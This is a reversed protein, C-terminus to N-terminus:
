KIGLQQKIKELDTKLSKNEQQVGIFDSRLSKNQQQLNTIAKQEIAKTKELEISLEKIAEVLIPTLRSYDVSKYGEKDTSVVEPYIKEIEQAIFGIQKDNNFKNLPFEDKRWFYNVGQLKLVNSLASTLPTIDKKYRFDSCAGITGTACINGVVHLASTPNTIGIGVNGGSIVMNVDNATGFALPANYYNIIHAWSPGHYGAQTQSANNAGLILGYTNTGTAISVQNEYASAGGTVDVFKGIYYNGSVTLKYDPATTGIGVNGSPTIRMKETPDTANSTGDVKTYFVLSGGIFPNPNRSAEFSVWGLRGTEGNGADNYYGELRMSGLYAGNTQGSIRLYNLASTGAVTSYVDLSRAPVTTGIGVNGASNIYVRDTAATYDYIRFANGSNTTIAFSRTGDLRIVPNSGGLHLQESPSTTGIGVNGTLGDITFRNTGAAAGSSTGSLIELKGYSNYVSAIRWNRNNVDANDSYFDIIPYIPANIKVTATTADGGSVQLKNGPATTGIGVNGGILYSDGNTNFRFKSVDLHNAIDVMGAGADSATGAHIYLNDRVSFYGSSIGPKGLWIGGAKNNNNSQIDLVGAPATTGIGVNGVNDIRMRELVATTGDATTLFQIRGPMDGSGPTGDISTRIVAANQFAAGDYAQARIDWLIDNNQIIAPSAVSGRASRAQLINNPTTSYSDQYHFNAAGDAVVHLKDLPNTTGIGVNGGSLIRMWETNNTKFVLATADTTGLFHTGAITGTNGLLAWATGPSGGNLLQVWVPSGSTGSNYYYGVPSLGGTGTNYVMLTAAPAAITAADTSSVLAIRPILLGRKIGTGADIDLLASTNPSAGAYNIGVGIQAFSCTSFLCNIILIGIAIQLVIHNKISKKMTKTKYFIIYAIIQYVASKCRGNYM